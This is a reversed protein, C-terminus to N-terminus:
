IMTISSQMLFLSKIHVGEVSFYKDLAESSYYEIRESFIIELTTYKADVTLWRIVDIGILSSRM